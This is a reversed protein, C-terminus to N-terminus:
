GFIRSQFHYSTWISDEIRNRGEEQSERPKSETCKRAVQCNGPAVLEAKAVKNVREINPPRDQVSEEALFLRNRSLPRITETCRNRLGISAVRRPNTERMALLNCSM